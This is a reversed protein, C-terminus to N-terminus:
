TSPIGKDGLIVLSRSWGLSDPIGLLNLKGVVCVICLQILIHFVFRIIFM